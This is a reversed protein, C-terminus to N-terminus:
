DGLRMLMLLIFLFCLFIAFYLAVSFVFVFYVDDYKSLIRLLLFSLLIIFIFFLINLVIM